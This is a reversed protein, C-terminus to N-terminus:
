IIKKTQFKKIGYNLKKLNMIKKIQKINNYKM